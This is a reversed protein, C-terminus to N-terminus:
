HSLLLTATSPEEESLAYEIAKELSMTRGEALAAEWTAEDLRSRAAALYPERLLAEEPRAPLRGSRAAGGGGRVAQGGARSRRQDRRCM